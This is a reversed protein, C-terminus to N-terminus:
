VGRGVYQYKRVPRGNAAKEERIHIEDGHDSEVMKVIDSMESIKSERLLRSARRVDGATLERQCGEDDVAKKLADLFALVRRQNPGEALSGGIKDIFALTHYRVFVIGWEVHDAEITQSRCSRAIILSVRQANEQCKGLLEKGFSGNDAGEGYALDDIEEGFDDLMEIAVDSFKIITEEPLKTSDQCPITVESQGSVKLSGLQEKIWKVVSQPYPAATNWDPNRIPRGGPAFSALIRPFFGSTIFDSNAMRFLQDPTGTLILTLNPRYIKSSEATEGLKKRTASSRKPMDFQLPCDWVELWKNVLIRAHKQDPNNALGLKVPAENIAACHVVRDFLEQSLGEASQYTDTQILIAAGAEHLATSVADLAAKKGSSTDGINMLFLSSRNDRSTVYRRGCVVSGLALASMVSFQPQIRRNITDVYGVHEGLVGPITKILDPMKRRVDAAKIRPAPKTSVIGSIDLNPDDRRRCGADELAQFLRGSVEPDDLAGPQAEHCEIVGLSVAAALAREGGSGCRFCRWVQQRTDIKLNMGGTSGHIPQSGQIIGGSHKVPNVPMLWHEVGPLDFDDAITSYTPHKARKVPNKKGPANYIFGQWELAEVVLSAARIPADRVVNYIPPMGKIAGPKIESSTLWSGPSVVYGRDSKIDIVTVNGYDPHVMGGNSVGTDNVCYLHWGGSPTRVTLCDCEDIAAEIRSIYDERQAEPINAIDPDIVILSDPGENVCLVALNMGSEIYAIADDSSLFVSEIISDDKATWTPPKKKWGKHDLPLIRYSAGAADARNLFQSFHDPETTTM